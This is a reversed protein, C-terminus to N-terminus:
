CVIKVECKVLKTKHNHCSHDARLFVSTSARDIKVLQLMVCQKM